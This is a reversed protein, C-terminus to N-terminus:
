SVGEAPVSETDQIPRVVLELGLAALVRVLTSLRSDTDGSEMRAIVPQSIGTLSALARQSLGKEKRARIFEDMLAIRMDSAAIEEPTLIEKEFDEWSDGIAKKNM